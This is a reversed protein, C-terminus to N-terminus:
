APGLIEFGDFQKKYEDAGGLYYYKFGAEKYFACENKLSEIGLMLEPKEYDWAFQIAEVNSTDYVRILSFAILKDTIPDYYGHIHNKEDRYESDFIPMVSKFKKYQCYKKYLTNMNQVNVHGQLFRTAPPTMRQYNTKTLDIRAYRMM